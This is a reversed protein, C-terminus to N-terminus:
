KRGITDIRTFNINTPSITRDRFFLIRSLLKGSNAAGTATSGAFFGIERVVVLAQNDALFYKSEVRGVDIKLLSTVPTRYVEAGLQTDNDSPATGDTGFAIYKLEYDDLSTGTLMTIAENLFDNMVRNYYIEEKIIGHEDYEQVIIKGEHPMENIM